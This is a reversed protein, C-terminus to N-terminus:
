PLILLLCSISKWIALMIGSVSLGVGYPMMPNRRLYFALTFIGSSIVVLLLHDMGFWAGLAALLKADGLGIGSRGFVSSGLIRTALVGLYGVTTGLVANTFLSFYGGINILLGAWLLPLTIQNPLRNVKHDFISLAILLIILGSSAFVKILCDPM